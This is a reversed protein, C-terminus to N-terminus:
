GRPGRRFPHAAGWYAREVAGNGVSFWYHQGSEPIWRKEGEDPLAAIHAELKNLEIKLADAQRSLQAKTTM